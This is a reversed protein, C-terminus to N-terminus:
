QLKTLVSPVMFVSFICILVTCLATVDVGRVETEESGDPGPGSNVM